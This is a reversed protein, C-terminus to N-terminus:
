KNTKNQKLTTKKEMVKPNKKYQNQTKTKRKRNPPPPSKNPKQKNKIKNYNKTNIKTQNKSQKINKQKTKTTIKTQKLLLVTRFCTCQTWDKQMLVVPLIYIIKIIININGNVDM